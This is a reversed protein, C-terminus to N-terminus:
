PLPKLDVPQGLCPGRFPFQRNTRGGTFGVEAAIGEFDLDERRAIPDFHGKLWQNRWPSDPEDTSDDHEVYRGRSRGGEEVYADFQSLFESPCLPRLDEILRPGIHCDASVIVLPKMKDIM